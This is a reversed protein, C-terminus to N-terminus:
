SVSLQICDVLAYRSALPESNEHGGHMQEQVPINYHQHDAQKEPISHDLLGVDDPSWKQM